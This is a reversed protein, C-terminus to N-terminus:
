EVEFLLLQQQELPSFNNDAVFLLTKHGNALTPGWCVGEINDIYQNLSDMNLLLRKSAPTFNKNQALSGISQVDTAKAFNALFVKVTCSLRGTSYSREVVLLEHSNIALIDSVGNVKFANAPRASYAVPSLLYAYQAVNDNDQPHLPFQFFRIYSSSQGTDARPGDQYLPEEVNVWLYPQNTALTCGELVGNQRPGSAVAQMHLNYPLTLQRVYGGNSDVINISPNCLITDNTTVIREGESTWVLQHNPLIRMNEPDPVLAPNAQKNPYVQGNAQKFFHVSLFVVSDINGHPSIAIKATYFRAPNISSRDDSVFYYQKNSPNYDIGSLGGVTTNGYSLNFPINYQSLFKLSQISNQAKLFSFNLVVVVMYCYPLISWRNHIFSTIYKMIIAM